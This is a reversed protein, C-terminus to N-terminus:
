LGESGHDDTLCQSHDGLTQLIRCREVRGAGCGAIIRQLEARLGALREIKLEVTRLHERAVADVEGCPRDGAQALTLLRRIQDLSFGLERCHRIFLLRELHNASYLRQNGSSRPPTTLVGVQEYYRITQVQCGGMKALHGISFEKAM